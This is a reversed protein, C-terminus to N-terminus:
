NADKKKKGGFVLIQTVKGDDNTTVLAGIGNDGIKSFRENKLGGEIADGAETKKTDKNKKGTMVKVNAATTLTVETGGELKKTDKNFKAGKTATIKDGEIKRIQITFEEAIVLGASLALLVGVCALKRLM